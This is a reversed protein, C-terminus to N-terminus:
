SRLRCMLFSGLLVGAGVAIGVAAIPNEAVAGRLSNTATGAAKRTEEYGERVMDKAGQYTEKGAEVADHMGQRIESAGSRVAGMAEHKADNLDNKAREVGDMANHANQGQYTKNSQQITAM